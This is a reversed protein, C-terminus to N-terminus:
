GMRLLVARNRHATVGADRASQGGAGTGTTFNDERQPDWFLNLPITGSIGMPYVYGEVRILQYGADKASQAGASTGTTFNDGRQSDYWLELPVTGPQETRFVCGEYRIHDYGADIASNNGEPTATVFNDERQSDYWLELPVLDLGQLQELTFESGNFDFLEVDTFAMTENQFTIDISSGIANSLSVGNFDVGLEATDFGQGGFVNQEGFGRILDNDQGM